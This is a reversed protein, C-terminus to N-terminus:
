EGFVQKSFDDNKNPTASLLFNMIHKLRNINYEILSNILLPLVAHLTKLLPSTNKTVYFM